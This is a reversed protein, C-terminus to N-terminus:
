PHLKEEYRRKYDNMEGEFGCEPCCLIQRKKEKKDPQDYSMHPLADFSVTELVELEPLEALALFEDFGEQTIKGFQSTIELLKLKADKKDKADILIYPILRSGNDNMDLDNMVLQRQHGDIFYLEGTKPEKWLFFPVIVGRRTLIEKLKQYNQDSLDKLHDQLPNVDRYDVTPLKNPNHITIQM